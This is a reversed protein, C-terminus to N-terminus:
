LRFYYAIDNQKRISRSNNECSKTDRYIEMNNKITSNFYKGHICMMFNDYDSYTSTKCLIHVYQFKM